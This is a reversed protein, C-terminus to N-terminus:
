RSLSLLSLESESESDPRFNPATVPHGKKNPCKQIGINSLIEKRTPPREEVCNPVQQLGGETEKEKM